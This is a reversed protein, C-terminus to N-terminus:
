GVFLIVCIVVRQSVDASVYITLLASTNEIATVVFLFMLARMAAPPAAPAVVAAPAAAGAAAGAPLTAPAEVNEKVKPEDEAPSPENEELMPEDKGVVSPSAPQDDLYTREDGPKM